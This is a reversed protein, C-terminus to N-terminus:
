EGGDPATFADPYLARIRDMARRIGSLRQPDNMHEKELGYLDMYIQRTRENAIQERRARRRLLPGSYYITSEIQKM